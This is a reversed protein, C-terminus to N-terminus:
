NVAERIHIHERMFEFAQQNRLVFSRIFSTAACYVLRSAWLAFFLAIFYWIMVKSSFYGTFLTGVSLALLISIGLMGRGPLSSQGSLFFYLIFSLTIALLAWWQFSLVSLVFSALLAVPGSLFAFWVVMKEFYPAEGTEAEITSLPIDTYFRRAVARDVGILLAGSNVQSVLYRYEDENV